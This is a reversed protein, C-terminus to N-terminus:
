REILLCYSTSKLLNYMDDVKLLIVIGKMFDIEYFNAMSFQAKSQFTQSELINQLIWHLLTNKM